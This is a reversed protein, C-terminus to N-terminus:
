DHCVQATITIPKVQERADYAYMLWYAERGLSLKVQRGDLRLWAVAYLPEDAFRVLVDTAAPIASYIALAIACSGSFCPNGGDIHQQTVPITITAAEATAPM